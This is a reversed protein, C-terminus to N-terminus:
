ARGMPQPSASTCDSARDRDGTAPGSWYVKDRLNSFAIIDLTHPFDLKQGLSDALEWAEHTHYYIVGLDDLHDRNIAPDTTVGPDSSFEIDQTTSASAAEFPPTSAVSAIPGDLDGYRVQYIPTGRQDHRM